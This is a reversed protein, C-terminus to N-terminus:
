LHPFNYLSFLDQFSSGLAWNKVFNLFFYSSLRKIKWQTVFNSLLVRSTPSSFKILKTLRVQTSARKPLLLGLFQCMCLLMGQEQLFWYFFSHDSSTRKQFLIIPHEMIVELSVKQTCESQFGFRCLSGPLLVLLVFRHRDLIYFQVDEVPIDM